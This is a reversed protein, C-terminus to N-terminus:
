SGPARPETIAGAARLVDAALDDLDEIGVSIRVLGDGVGEARRQEPTSYSHSTELPLCALSEVGGLSSAPTVLRLARRFGRAAELSGLDLTLVGGFGGDLVRAAVEHDPHSALGPYHVGLGAEECARALGMANECHRQLRLTVTKMGRGLLHAAHPDLTPGANRRARLIAHALPSGEPWSLAGAILDSHGGLYKTASHMSLDAGLALPRQLVPSAFSADVGLLAGADHAADAWARVDAVRLLPNTMSEMWLLRTGGPVQPPDPSAPLLHLRLGLRALEDRLLAVTGGYGGGQVAVTDGAGTTALCAVLIASLGSSTLASGGAGELAALKREVAEVSPNAYRSYIYRSESGDPLEPYWYTSTLHLPAHISGTRPDPEEGAHVATTAPGPM